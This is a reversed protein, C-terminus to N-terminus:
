ILCFWNFWYFWCEHEFLENEEEPTYAVQDGVQLEEGDQEDDATLVGEAEEAEVSGSSPGPTLVVLYRNGCCCTSKSTVMSVCEDEDDGDTTKLDERTQHGEEETVHHLGM